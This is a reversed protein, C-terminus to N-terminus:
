WDTYCKQSEDVHAYSCTVTSWHEITHIHRNNVCDDTSQCKSLKWNPTNCIFNSHIAMFLDKHPCKNKNRWFLYQLTSKGPSTTFAHKVPYAATLRNEFFWKRDEGAIYSFEPPEIDKDAGAGPINDTIKTKVMRTVLM